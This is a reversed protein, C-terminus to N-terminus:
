GRRRAEGVGSRSRGAVVPTANLLREPPIGAARALAVGLALDGVREPTHADSGIVFRCGTRAVARLHAPDLRGHGTNIEFAAGSRACAEGVAIWDVPLQFGPHTVVDIPHREIARVLAATNRALARRAARDSLRAALNLAGLELAERPRRPAVWRHLGLQVYDFLGFWAAPLDIDGACSTVNAE